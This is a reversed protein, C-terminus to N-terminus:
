FLGAAKLSIKILIKLGESAKEIKASLAQLKENKEKLEGSINLLRSSTKELASLKGDIAELILDNELKEMEVIIDEIKERADLPFSTDYLTNRAINKAERVMKIVKLRETNAM